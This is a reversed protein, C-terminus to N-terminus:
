AARVLKREMQAIEIDLEARAARLVPLVRKAENASVAPGEESDPARVASLEIIAEALRMIPNTEITCIAGEPVGRVGGLALFPDIAGADNFEHLIAALTLGSLDNRENEANGITPGSCGVRDGFEENTLSHKAKMDRIIKAVAARFSNKTPRARRELVKPNTAM